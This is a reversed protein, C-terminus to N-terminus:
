VGFRSRIDIMFDNFKTIDNHIELKDETIFPLVDNVSISLDNQLIYMEIRGSLTDSFLLLAAYQKRMDELVDYIEYIVNVLVTTSFEPLDANIWDSITGAYEFVVDFWTGHFRGYRRLHGLLVKIDGSQPYDVELAMIMAILYRRIINYMCRAMIRKVMIPVQEETYEEKLKKLLEVYYSAEEYYKSM